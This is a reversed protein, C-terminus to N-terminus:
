SVRLPVSFKPITAPKKRATLKRFLTNIGFGAKVQLPTLFAQRGPNASDNWKQEMGPISPSFQGM